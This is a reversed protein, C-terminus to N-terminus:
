CTQKADNETGTLQPDSGSTQPPRAHSSFSDGGSDEGGERTNELVQLHGHTISTFLNRRSREELPTKTGGSHVM